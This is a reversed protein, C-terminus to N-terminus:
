KPNGLARALRNCSECRLCPSPGGEYCSWVLDFPFDPMVSRLATVFETKTLHDTYCKVRVQNATSYELARSSAEMFETSNDPFTKAEEANFGVVVQDAGRSEAFSAAVQILVGNRNPVWVAKKTAFAKESDLESRKLDPMQLKPDTLASGGLAGLWELSLGLHPVKFHDSLRRAAEFERQAARQGYNVTLALVPEDKMVCWALNVASDLGGSLLVVSKKRTSQSSTAM